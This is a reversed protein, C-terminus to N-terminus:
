GVHWLRDLPVAWLREAFPVVQSGGYLVIGRVFQGSATEALARLGSFDASTVSSSSKVEVGVVRGSADELVLDVERGAQTRFHHLRIAPEAWGAQKNLEMAVFTELLGGRLGSLGGHAGRLSAEDVGALHCALGTDALMVKPAKSLRLGRNAAWAPLTQVLFVAQLLAFYRKLTTQPIALSRALDAFNLLGSSRSALIALLKPVDALGEISSLERVDRQVIAGLYAAYWAARRAPDDRGVAEPYGGRVIRAIVDNADGAKANSSPAALAAAAESFVATIFADGAGEIEGQTLPWLTVTEMRGALSESASPVLLANASGTLLFRGPRRDRDVSSKIARFLDPVRQVEDLTTPGSLGAVFGAPDDQAAAFVTPDDLTLYRRAPSQAEGIALALTTKGTQRAGQLLVVPTDTLAARVRSELRRRYM